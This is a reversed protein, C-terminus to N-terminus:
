STSGRYIIPHNFSTSVRYIDIFLPIFMVMMSLDDM